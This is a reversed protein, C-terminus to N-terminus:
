PTGEASGATTTGDLVAQEAAVRVSEAATPPGSTLPPNSSPAPGLKSLDHGGSRKM